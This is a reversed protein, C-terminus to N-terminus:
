ANPDEGSFAWMKGQAYAIATRNTRPTPFTYKVWTAYDRSIVFLDEYPSVTQTVYVLRNPGYAPINSQNGGFNHIFDVGVGTELNLKRVYTTNTSWHYGDDSDPNGLTASRSNESSPATGSGDAYMRNKSSLSWEYGDYGAMNWGGSSYVVRTDLDMRRIPPGSVGLGVAWLNNSQINLSSLDTSGSATGIIVSDVSGDVNIIKFSINGGDTGVTYASEGDTCVYRRTGAIGIGSCAKSTRNKADFVMFEDATQHVCIIWRDDIVVANSPNAPVYDEIEVADQIVAM